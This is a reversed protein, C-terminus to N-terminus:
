MIRFISTVHGGHLGMSAMVGKNYSVVQIFVVVRLKRKTLESIYKIKLESANVLGFTKIWVTDTKVDFNYQCLKCWLSIFKM